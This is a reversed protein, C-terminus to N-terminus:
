RTVIIFFAAFVSRKNFYVEEVVHGLYIGLGLAAVSDNRATIGIVFLLVGWVSHHIHVKTFRDPNVQKSLKKSIPNLSFTLALTIITILFFQMSNHLDLLERYSGLALM